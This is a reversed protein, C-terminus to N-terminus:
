SHLRRVDRTSGLAGPVGRLGTLRVRRMGRLLATKWPSQGDGFRVFSLERVGFGNISGRLTIDGDIESLPIISLSGSGLDMELVVGIQRWGPSLVDVPTAGEGFSFEGFASEGFPM